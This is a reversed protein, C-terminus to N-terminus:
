RATGFQTEFDEGLDFALDVFWRHDIGTNSLTIITPEQFPFRLIQTRYGLSIGDHGQSTRCSGQSRGRLAGPKDGKPSSARSSV